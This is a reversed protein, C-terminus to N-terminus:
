ETGPTYVPLQPITFGVYEEEDSEGETDEDDSESSCNNNSSSDDDINENDKAATTTDTVKTSTIDTVSQDVPMSVEALDDQEALVDKGEDDEDTVATTTYTVKASTTDTTSPDVLMSVKALDVQEALVDAEAHVQELRAHLKAIAQDTDLLKQRAKACAATLGEVTQEPPLSSLENGLAENERVMRRASEEDKAMNRKALKILKHVQRIKQELDEITLTANELVSEDDSTVPTQQRGSNKATDDHHKEQQQQEQEQYGFYDSLGSGSRSPTERRTKVPTDNDNPLSSPEQESNSTNSNSSHPSQEPKAPRLTSKSNLAQEQKAMARAPSKAMKMEQKMHRTDSASKSNSIKKNNSNSTQTAASVPTDGSAM